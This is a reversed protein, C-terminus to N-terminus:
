TEHKESKPPSIACIAPPPEISTKMAAKKLWPHFPIFIHNASNYEVDTGKKFLRNKV